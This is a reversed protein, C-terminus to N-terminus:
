MGSSGFGTKSIEQFLSFQLLYRCHLRKRAHRDQGPHTATQQTITGRRPVMGQVSCRGTVEDEPLSSFSFEQRLFASVSKCCSETDEGSTVGLGELALRWDAWAEVQAGLPQTDVSSGCLSCPTDPRLAQALAQPEMEEM